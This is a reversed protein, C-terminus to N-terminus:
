SKVSPANANDLAKVAYTTAAPTKVTYTTGSVAADGGAMVVAGVLADGVTLANDAVGSVDRVTFGAQALNLSVLGGATIAMSAFNSPFTPLTDTKAKIAAVETDIYGAITGLQTDMNASAMGLASRVSSADVTVNTAAPAIDGILFASGDIPTPSWNSDVTYVGGGSHATIRRAQRSVVISRNVISGDDWPSPLTVTSTTATTINGSTTLFAPGASSGFIADYVDGTLVQFRRTVPLAGSVSVTAELQGVTNTDTADLTLYYYGSSMHTAGGSNKSVRSTAGQKHLKIDSAAITLGTMEISPDSPDLFPGIQVTQAATSKRLFM